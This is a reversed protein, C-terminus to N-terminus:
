YGIAALWGYIATPTGTCRCIVPPTGVCYGVPALCNCYGIGALWICIGAPAGVCYGSAALYNCHAIVVSLLPLEVDVEVATAFWICIALTGRM